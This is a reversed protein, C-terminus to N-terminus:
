VQIDLIVLSDLLAEQDYDELRMEIRNVREELNEIQTKLTTLSKELKKFKPNYEAGISNHVESVITDTSGGGTAMEAVKCAIDNRLSLKIKELEAEVKAVSDLLGSTAPEPDAMTLNLATITKSRHYVDPM